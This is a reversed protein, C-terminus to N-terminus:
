KEPQEEQNFLKPDGAVEEEVIMMNAQDPEDSLNSARETAVAQEDNSKTMKSDGDQTCLAAEKGLGTDGIDSLSPLSEGAKARQQQRLRIATTAITPMVIPGSSTQEHDGSVFSLAPSSTSPRSGSSATSCSIMSPQSDPAPQHQQQNRNSNNIGTGTLCNSKTSPNKTKTATAQLFQESSTGNSVQHNNTQELRTRLYRQRALLEAIQMQQKQDREELTKIFGKAKTLLGLTTHRSSDSELPVVEKLRELCTRLHARRNKELENHTSRNGQSKKKPRKIGNNAQMSISNMGMLQHEDNDISHQHSRQQVLLHHYDPHNALLLHQGHNHHHHHNLNIASSNNCEGLENFDINSNSSFDLYGHSTPCSGGSSSASTAQADLGSQNSCSSCSSVSVRSSLHHQHQNNIAKAAAVAAVASKHKDINNRRTHIGNTTTNLKLNQSDNLHLKQDQNHRHFQHQQHLHHNNTTPSLQHNNFKTTLATHKKTYPSAVIGNTALTIPLSSAYGHEAERRELYDAAELLAAISLDATM